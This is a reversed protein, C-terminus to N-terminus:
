RRCMWRAQTGRAALPDAYIKSDTDEGFLSLPNL